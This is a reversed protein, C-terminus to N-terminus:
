SRARSMRVGRRLSASSGVSTVEAQVLAEDVFVVAPYQEGLVLEEVAVM